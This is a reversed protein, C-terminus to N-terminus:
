YAEVSTVGADGELAALLATLLLQLTGSRAEEALQRMTVLPLTFLLTVALQPIAPRLSAEGTEAVGGVFMLGALFLCVTLFVWGAPALFLVRLDNRLIAWVAAQSSPRGSM